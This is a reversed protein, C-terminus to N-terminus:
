IFLLYRQSTEADENALDRFERYMKFNFHDRLYNSWFYYLKPMVESDAGFELRDALARQYFQSYKSASFEQLLDSSEHEQMKFNEIKFDPDFIYGVATGGDSYFRETSFQITKTGIGYTKRTESPVTHDLDNEVVEIKMDNGSSSFQKREYESLGLDIVESIDRRNQHRSFGTDNIVSKTHGSGAYRLHHSKRQRDKPTKHPKIQEFIVIKSVDAAPEANFSGNTADVHKEETNSHEKLILSEFEYHPDKVIDLLAAEWEDGFQDQLDKKSFEVLM